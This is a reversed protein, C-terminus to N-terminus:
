RRGVATPKMKPLTFSLIDAAIVEYKGGLHHGQGIRTVVASQPPLAPCLASEDGQGYMCLVPVPALRLIEPLLPVGRSETQGIWDLVHITFEAERGPAILVVAAIRSRLDEPLRNALFPMVDAGTSYGILLVRADSEEEPLYHRLVRALDQAASDPSQERWFYRLSNVGVVSVGAAALRTSVRRDIATWGGDGSFFVAFLDSRRDALVEVLPLDSVDVAAARLSALLMLIPAILRARERAGALRVM